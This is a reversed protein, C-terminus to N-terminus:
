DFLKQIQAGAAKIFSDFVGNKNRSTANIKINKASLIEGTSTDILQASVSYIGLYRGIEENYKPEGESNVYLVFVRKIGSESLKELASQSAEYVQELSIKEPFKIVKYGKKLLHSQAESTLNPLRKLGNDSQIMAIVSTPINLKESSITKFDIYASIREESNKLSSYYKQFDKGLDLIDDFNLKISAYLRNDSIVNKLRKIRCLVIGNTDSVGSRSYDGDNNRITFTVKAGPVPIKGSTSSYYVKFQFAGGKGTDISDTNEGTEIFLNALTKEARSIYIPFEDMREKVKTSSIAATLYANIGDIVLGKEIYDDGKKISDDVLSLKRQLESLIRNRERELNKNSIRVLVWVKLITLGSDETQEYYVDEIEVGSLNVISKSKVTEQYSKRLEEDGSLGGSTNFIKEVSTEEFIVNAIKGKANQFAKEKVEELSGTDEVYGVVYLNQNDKKPKTVWSPQSPLNSTAVESKVASATNGCYFFFTLATSLMSIYFIKRM